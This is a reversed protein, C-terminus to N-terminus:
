AGCAAPVSTGGANFCPMMPSHPVKDKDGGNAVAGSLRPIATITEGPGLREIMLEKERYRQTVSGDAGRQEGSSGTSRPACPRQSGAACIRLEFRRPGLSLTEREVSGELVM